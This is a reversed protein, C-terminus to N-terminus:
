GELHLVTLIMLKLLNQLRVSMRIGTSQFGIRNLRKLEGIKLFMNEFLKETPWNEFRKGFSDGTRGASVSKRNLKKFDFNSELVKALQSSTLEEIIKDEPLHHVRYDKLLLINGKLELLLSRQTGKSSKVLKSLIDVASAAASVGTIVTEVM